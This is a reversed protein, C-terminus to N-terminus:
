KAGVSIGYKGVMDTFDDQIGVPVGAVDAVGLGVTPCTAM